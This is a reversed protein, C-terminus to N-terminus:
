RCNMENRTTQVSKEGFAQRRRRMQLSNRAAERVRVASACRTFAERTKRSLLRLSSRKSDSSRAIVVDLVSMVIVIIIIISIIVTMVHQHGHLLSQEQKRRSM